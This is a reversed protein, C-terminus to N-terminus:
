GKLLKEKLKNFKSTFLCCNISERYDGGISRKTLCLVPPTQIRKFVSGKFMKWWRELDEVFAEPTNFIGKIDYPLNLKENITGEIYWNIIDEPTKRNWDQIWSKFLRDHYWYVLPDGKGEDVNQADSLEASAVINLSGDPIIERGALKNVYRALSYVNVEGEMKWLDGIAALFGCSDGYLTFYGVTLESKNGNNTFVTRGPLGSAIAALVRSSRDRAQVNEMNFNSLVVEIEENITFFSLGDIQRKTLDVSEQIPIVAYGCGLNKALEYALGKTTESNYKSPM